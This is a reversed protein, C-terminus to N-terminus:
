NVLEPKLHNTESKSNLFVIVSFTCTCNSCNADIILIIELQTM